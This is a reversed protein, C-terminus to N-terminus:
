FDGEWLEGTEPDIPRGQQDTFGTPSDPDVNFIVGSDRFLDAADEIAELIPEGIPADPPVLVDEPEAIATAVSDAEEITQEIDVM